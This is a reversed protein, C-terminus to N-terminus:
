EGHGQACAEALAVKLCEYIRHVIEAHRRKAPPLEILGEQLLELKGPADPLREFEEFTMRPITPATMRRAEEVM